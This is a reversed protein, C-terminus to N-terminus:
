QSLLIKKITVIGRLLKGYYTMAYKVDFPSLSIFHEPCFSIFVLSFFLSCVKSFFFTYVRRFCLLTGTYRDVNNNYAYVTSTYVCGTSTLMSHFTLTNVNKYRVFLRLHFLFFVSLFNVAIIDGAFETATHIM